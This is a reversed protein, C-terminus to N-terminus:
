DFKAGIRKLEMTSVNACTGLGEVHDLVGEVEVPFTVRELFYWGGDNLLTVNSMIIVMSYYHLWYYM